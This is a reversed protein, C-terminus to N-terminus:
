EEIRWPNGPDLISLWQEPADRRQAELFPLAGDPVHDTLLVRNGDPDTLMLGNREGYDQADRVEALVGKPEAMSYLAIVPRGEREDVVIARPTIFQVADPDEPVDDVVTVNAGRPFRTDLIHQWHQAIKPNM